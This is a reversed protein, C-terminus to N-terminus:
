ETATATAAAAGGASAAWDDFQAMIASHTDKTVQPLNDFGGFMKAVDDFGRQVAARMEGIQESGANSGVMAKAFDMIRNTTQDVGFFGDEAVLAKAEARETESLNFDGARLAWFGQGTPESTGIASNLLRRVADMQHNTDRILNHITTPDAPRGRVGSSNQQASAASGTNTNSAGTSPTNGSPTYTDVPNAASGAPTSNAAKQAAPAQSAPPTYTNYAHTIPGISNTSM